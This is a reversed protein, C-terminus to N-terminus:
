FLYEFGFFLWDKVVCVYVEVVVQINLQGQMFDKVFCLWKGFFVGFMDYLVFVQGLCDVGVGIGIMLIKLMYMVEFVVFM